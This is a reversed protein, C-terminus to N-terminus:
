LFTNRYSRLVYSLHLLCTVYWRNTKASQGHVVAVLDVSWLGSCKQRIHCIDRGGWVPTICALRPIPTEKVKIQTV